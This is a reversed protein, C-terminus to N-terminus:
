VKFPHGHCWLARQEVVRDILLLLALHLLPHGHGEEFVDADLIELLPKHIHVIEVVGAM